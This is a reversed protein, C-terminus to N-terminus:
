PADTWGFLRGRKITEAVSPPVAAEWAPDGRQLQALVEDALISLFAPDYGRIMEFARRQELFKHLMRSEPPVDVDDVTIVHGSTPDRTPYVYMRVNRRFLRGAAELVGGPLDEYFTEDAIQRVSPIGVALGIQKDTYRSLYEVL